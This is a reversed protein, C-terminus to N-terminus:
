KFIFNKTIIISVYILFVGGTALFQSYFAMCGLVLPLFLVATFELPINFMFAMAILIIMVLLLAGFLSGTTTTSASGLIIGITETTNIFLAM